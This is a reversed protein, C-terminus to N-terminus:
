FTFLAQHFINNYNFIIQITVHDDVCQGLAFLLQTMEALSNSFDIGGLYEMQSFKPHDLETRVDDERWLNLAKVTPTIFHETSLSRTSASDQQIWLRKLSQPPLDRDVFMWKLLEIVFPDTHYEPPYYVIDNGLPIIVLSELLLMWSLYKFETKIRNLVAENHTRLSLPKSDLYPYAIKIQLDM